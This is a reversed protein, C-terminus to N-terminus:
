KENEEIPKTEIKLKSRFQDAHPKCIGIWQHGMLRALHTAPVINRSMKCFPCKM